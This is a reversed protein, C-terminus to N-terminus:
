RPRHPRPRPVNTHTSSPPPPAASPLQAVATPAPPASPARAFLLAGGVTLPGARMAVSSALWLAPQSQVLPGAGSLGLLAIVVLEGVGLGMM